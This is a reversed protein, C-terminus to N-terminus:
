PIHGTKRCVFFANWSNLGPQQDSFGDYYGEISMGTLSCIMELEPRFFYRMRHSEQFEDIIGSSTDQMYIQYNVNVLNGEPHMVPEAIRLLSIEGSSLRKVRVRPLDTLVGPGYWCDFLFLGGDKLHEYATNFAQIVDSNEPLYSVVHFLAMVVDFQQGLRFTRFDGLTYTGAGRARACELMEESRDVGSVSYGKARILEDHRGTGCGINLISAAEPSYRKCLRSIYDAEKPYDKDAYLLDYYRAYRVFQNM